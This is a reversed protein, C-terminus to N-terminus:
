PKKLRNCHRSRPRNERGEGSGMGAFQFDLTHRADCRTLADVVWQEQFNEGLRQKKLRLLKCIDSLSEEL